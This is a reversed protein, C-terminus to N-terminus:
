EAASSQHTDNFEVEISNSYLPNLVQLYLYISAIVPFTSDGRLLQDYTCTALNQLGWNGRWILKEDKHIGTKYFGIWQQKAGSGSHSKKLLTVTSSGTYSFTRGETEVNGNNGTNTHCVSVLLVLAVLGLCHITNCWTNESKGDAVWVTILNWKM